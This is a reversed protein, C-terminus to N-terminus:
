KCLLNSVLLLGIPNADGESKATSARRHADLDCTLEIADRLQSTLNAAPNAGVGIAVLGARM